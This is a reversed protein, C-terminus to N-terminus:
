SPTAFIGTKASEVIRAVGPHRIKREPSVAYFRERVSGLEAIVKVDYNKCIQDKVITPAPFVGRGAQGFVKMLAGDEFEAVIAPRVGAEEFWQELSHRIAAAKSPMLFPIDTLSSPFGRRVKSALKPVAFLTTTSEGMVHNYARVDLSPALPIDSLVLDLEHVALEAFLRNPEDERCEVISEDDAELAPSLLRFAVLKAMVDAIGVRFRRPRGIPRGRVADVLERGTRFIDEAYRLVLEGTETLDLNRGRRTFLPAGVFGELSKLQMSIAPRGIGLSRAAAAIGGERAVTWFYLLHHYNLWEM